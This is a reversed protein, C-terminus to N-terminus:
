DGRIERIENPTPFKVKLCYTSTAAKLWNLTPWRLIVNYSSPCDVILFDVKKTIQTPYTGATVSLSIIGKPYICDGSFSVLPSKFPWLRKPDLRLQQYAMMYMINVSSGNDVSLRRKNFIFFIFIFYFIFVLVKRTNFGEIVLMIVLSNDHPQKIGNADWESFTIYDDNNSRHYKM